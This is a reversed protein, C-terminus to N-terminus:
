AASLGKFDRITTPEVDLGQLQVGTFPLTIESPGPAWVYIVSGPALEIGGPIPEPPVPTDHRRRGHGRAAAVSGAGATTTALGTVAASKVAGRRTLAAPPM